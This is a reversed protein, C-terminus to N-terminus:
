RFQHHCDLLATWTIVTTVWSINVTMERCIRRQSHWRHLSFWVSYRQTWSLVCKHIQALAWRRQMSRKPGCMRRIIKTIDSDLRCSSLQLHQCQPFYTYYNRFKLSVKYIAVWDWSSRQYTSAVTFRVTADSAKCWEKNVQLEVLPM